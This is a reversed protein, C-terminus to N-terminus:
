SSWRYIDGHILQSVQHRFNFSDRKLKMLAQSEEDIRKCLRSCRDKNLTMYGIKSPLTHIRFTLIPLGRDLASQGDDLECCETQYVGYM